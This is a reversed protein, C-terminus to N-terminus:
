KAAPRGPSFRIETATLTEGTKATEIVVRDGVQPASPSGTKGKALYRTRDTLQVSVTGDKVTKVEVHSADIATITGLVHQGTGHAWAGTTLGLFLFALLFSRVTTM